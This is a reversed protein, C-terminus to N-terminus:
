ANTFGGLRSFLKRKLSKAKLQILRLSNLSMFVRVMLWMLFAGMISKKYNGGMIYGMHQSWCRVIPTLMFILARGKWNDRHLHKVIHHAYRLYGQQWKKNTKMLQAGYAQDLENLEDSLLGLEWYRYCIIKGGKPQNAAQAAQAAAQADAQNEAKTAYAKAGLIGTVNTGIKIPEPAQQVQTQAKSLLGSSDITQIPRMNVM